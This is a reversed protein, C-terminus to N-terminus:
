AVGPHLRARLWQRWRLTEAACQADPQAPRPGPRWTRRAGDFDTAECGRSEPRNQELVQIGADASKSASFEFVRASAAEHFALDVPRSVVLQKAKKLDGDILAQRLEQARQSTHLVDMMIKHVMADDVSREVLALKIRVQLEAVLGADIRFSLLLNLRQLHSVAREIDPLKAALTVVLLLTDSKQGATSTNDLLKRVLEAFGDMDQLEDLKGALKQLIERLRQAHSEFVVQDWRKSTEILTRMFHAAADSTQPQELEMRVAEIFAHDDLCHLMEETVPGYLERLTNRTDHSCLPLLKFLQSLDRQTWADHAAINMAFNMAERVEPDNSTTLQTAHECQALLELRLRPECMRVMRWAVKPYGAVMLIGMTQAIAGLANKGAKPAADISDDKVILGEVGELCKRVAEWVDRCDRPRLPEHDKRRKSRQPLRRGSRPSFAFRPSVVEKLDPRLPQGAQTLDLTLPLRSSSANPPTLKRQISSM